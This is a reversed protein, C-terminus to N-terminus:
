RARLLGQPRAPLSLVRRFSDPRVFHYPVRPALMVDAIFLRPSLTSIRILKVIEFVRYICPTVFQDCLRYPSVSFIDAFFALLFDAVLLLVLALLFLVLFDEALFDDVLMPVFIVFATLLAVTAVVLARPPATLRTTFVNDGDAPLPLRLDLFYSTKPISSLILAAPVQFRSARPVCPQAQGEAWTRVRVTLAFKDIAGVCGGAGDLEM